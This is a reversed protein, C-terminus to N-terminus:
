DEGDALGEHKLRADIQRRADEGLGLRANGHSGDHPGPWVGEKFCKAFTRLCARNMRMGRHIDEDEIRLDANCWPPINEVFIFRFEGMELGLVEKCAQMGLAAQQYYGLKRITGVLAPWRIDRTMKLEGFDASDLPIADPRWKLWIGTEKDRWFLSREILGNLIGQRVLPHNGLSFAMQKIAVIEKPALPSRGAKRMKERWEKCVDAGYTWKKLTAEGTKKDISEYEDPQAVFVKAFFKEGLVLHHLARGVVFHRKEEDDPQYEPNGTWKAYFHAPSGIDPNLARLMSSSVSPVTVFKGPKTPHPDACIDPSHYTELPIGSYMGPKTIQKGDWPITRDKM